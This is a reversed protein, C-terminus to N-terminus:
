NICVFTQETSFERINEPVSRYNINTHEPNHFWDSVM